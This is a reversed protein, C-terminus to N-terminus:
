SSAGPTIPHILVDVGYPALTRQGTVSGGQLTTLDPDPDYTVPEDSANVYWHFERGDEHSLRDTMVRPDAGAPQDPLGALLGLARYIRWTPDPNARARSAAFYELPLTCLVAQGEGRAARLLVPRGHQDRAVVIADTPEVPLIARGDATGAVPIRVTEGAAIDGFDEDFHVVVEDDLVPEVLGYSLTHRAGFLPEMGTWWPGRQATADGTGYSAFVTAGSAALERLRRWTPTTVAKTSPLIWLAPEAPLGDAERIVAPAMGAERLAIYAQEAHRFVDTRHVPDVFWNDPADLYASVLLAVPSPVRRCRPLDIADLIEAFRRMEILQPKPEGTVDTLGFHQEFPQHRYPDLDGLNDFDTNNWALWGTSGALLSLHLVQRYYDAAHEDSTFDSTVGFEELVVPLNAVSTLECIFAARLHQRVPDDGMPYVHPGVFDSLAALDRVSFGNDAGTVEVGWAGDGFSLPQDGGGARVANAVIRAWSSVTARDASRDYNPMENSILWGGIAPHDAFRETVAEIYWAQQAVMWVDGYLDRGARWAPDWNQGSMHGVLFTPITQMGLEQHADLFDAFRDLVDQDLVGPEPVAHPWFLFSRTVGLGHEHLTRLETRVLGADYSHWMFPGGSRSWFNVGLWVLPRGDTSRVCASPRPVSRTM